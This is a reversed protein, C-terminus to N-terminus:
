RRRLSVVVEVHFTHPMLDLAVVSELVFGVEVLPMLDRALTQPDCSVYILRQPALRLVLARHEDDLGTRPPDVVVTQVSGFAVRGGLVQALPEWRAQPM